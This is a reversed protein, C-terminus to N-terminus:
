RESVEPNRAHNGGQFWMKARLPLLETALRLDNLVLSFL